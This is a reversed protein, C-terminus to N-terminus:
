AFPSSAHALVDRSLSVGWGSRPAPRSLSSNSHKNIEPHDTKTPTFTVILSMYIIFHSIYTAHNM